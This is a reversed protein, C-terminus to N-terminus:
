RYRRILAFTAALCLTATFAYVGRAAFRTRLSFDLDPIGMADGIIRDLMPGDPIRGAFVHADTSAAAVM